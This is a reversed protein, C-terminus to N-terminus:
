HSPCVAGAARGRARAPHPTHARPAARRRIRRSTMAQARWGPTACLIRRWMPRGCSGGAELGRARVPRAATPWAPALAPDDHFRHRPRSAGTRTWSYRHDSRSSVTRSIVLVVRRVPAAGNANRRSRAQARIPQCGGTVHECEWRTVATSRGRLRRARREDPATAPGTSPVDGARSFRACVYRWMFEGLLVGTLFFTGLAM